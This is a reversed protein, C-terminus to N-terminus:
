HLYRPERRIGDTNKKETAVGRRCRGTETDMATLRADSSLSADALRAAAGRDAASDAASDTPHNGTRLPGKAAKEYAADAPRNGVTKVIM